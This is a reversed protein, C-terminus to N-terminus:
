YAENTALGQVSTTINLEGNAAKTQLVTSKEYYKGKLHTLKTCQKKHSFRRPTVCFFPISYMVQFFNSNAVVTKTVDHWM